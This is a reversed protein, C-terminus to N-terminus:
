GGGGGGMNTQGAVPSSASCLMGDFLAQCSFHQFWGVVGMALPFCISFRVQKAYIQYDAESAFTAVLGMTVNRGDDVAQM